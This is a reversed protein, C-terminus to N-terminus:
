AFDKALTANWTTGQDFTTLALVDVKNAGTSLAPAGGSWKFSSPWTATRSGTADQTIRVMITQAKGSGPLNSFTMSTFNASLALTFYDGLACNIAVTGSSNTLASVPESIGEGGAYALNGSGNVVLAQGASGVGLRGAAGSVGGVIIDQSTTMPNSMSSAGPGVVVDSAGSAVIATGNVALTVGTQGSKKLTLIQATSNKVWKTPFHAPFIVNRGATLTTPSDTFTISEAQYQAQTLTLDADSTFEVSVAPAGSLNAIAQTTMGGTQGSTAGGTGAGADGAVAETGALTLPRTSNLQTATKAM